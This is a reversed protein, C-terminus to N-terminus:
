RFPRWTLSVFALEQGKDLNTNTFSRHEVGYDLAFQKTLQTSVGLKLTGIPGSYAPRTCYATEYCGVVRVPEINTLQAELGATVYVASPDFVCLSVFKVLCSM